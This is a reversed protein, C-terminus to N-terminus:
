AVVVLSVLGQEGMWREVQKMLESEVAHGLGETLDFCGSFGCRQGMGFPEAQQEILLDAIAAIPAQESAQAIGPQAMLSRDLIDVVAGRATEIARQELFEGCAAPDIGM